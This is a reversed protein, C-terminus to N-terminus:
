RLERATLSWGRPSRTLSPPRVTIGAGLMVAFRRGMGDSLYPAFPLGALAGINQIANLLGLMSSGPHNFADRWQPLSQLGNMMSGDFGVTSSTILLLAIWANLIVLRRRYLTLFDTPDPLSSASRTGRTTVGLGTRTSSIPTVRLVTLPSRALVWKANKSSCLLFRTTPLHPRNPPHTSSPSGRVLRIEDPM